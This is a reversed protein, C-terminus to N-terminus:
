DVEQYSCDFLGKNCGFNIEKQVALNAEWYVKTFIAAGAGNSMSFVQYDVQQKVRKVWWISDGLAALKM